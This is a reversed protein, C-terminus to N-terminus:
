LFVITGTGGIFRHVLYGPRSTTNTSIVVNGSVVFVNPLTNSYALVVIGSGGNGGSFPGSDPSRSAGGGGGGTNVNANRGAAPAGGNGSNGGGYQGYGGFANVDLSGGGGGGAYQVNVGTISSNIGLGGHGGDGGTVGAGGAGGGGGNVGPYNLAGAGGPDGQQTPSPFGFGGTPPGSLGGGGSGGNRGARNPSNNPVGAGGGVATISIAGGSLITNSGNYGTVDAYTSGAAAGAVSITYTTGTSITVNTLVVGGAGGAGGGFSSSGHGGGSGGGGIALTEASFTIPPKITFVNSTILPDQSTGADGTIRLQFFREENAPITSNTPLTITTSNLTTRFSGTNGTVFNSSTVNGVTYYYLLTNNSLDTTNMTFVINSGEYVFNAPKTINVFAAANTSYRIIVVGTGAGPALSPNGVGGSGGGYYSAGAGIPAGDTYWAPGGGAYAVSSGTITRYVGNGGQGTGGARGPPQGAGGAGGGGGGPYPATPAPVPGASGGPYGQGPVGAGGPMTSNSGGYGAGSGGPAGPIYTQGGEGDNTAGGGGYAIFGLALTNGGPAGSGGGAGVILPYSTGSVSATGDLLGGAGAGARSLAGGGGGTMLYEISGAKNFTISYEIPSSGAPQGAFTHIRYGSINSQVGGNASLTILTDDLVNITNSTAVIPGSQSEGRVIANFSRTAGFPTQPNTITFTNSTGNMVFSGTNSSFTTLNGTTSYYFLTGNPVNVATFTFTVNSSEVIPSTANSVFSIINYANSTDQITINSTAYVVNGTASVTRLQVRFNEGTENMLSLDANAKLAFTGANNTLYFLGTNAVFDSSTVNATAPLVSYYLTSNGLANATVLTFAVLDGENVTATNATLSVFSSTDRLTVTPSSYIVAGSVSDTRVQVNFSVDGELAYFATPLSINAFGNSVKVAGTLSNSSFKSSDIPM